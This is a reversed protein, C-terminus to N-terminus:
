FRGKRAVGAYGEGPCPPENAAWPLASVAFCKQASTAGTSVTFALINWKRNGFCMDSLPPINLVSPM